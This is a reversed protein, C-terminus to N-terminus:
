NGHVKLGKGYELRRDYTVVADPAAAAAAVGKRDKRNRNQCLHEDFEARDIIEYTTPRPQYRGGPEPHTRKFHAYAKLTKNKVVIVYELLHWRLEDENSNVLIARTDVPDDDKRDPILGETIRFCEQPNRLGGEMTKIAEEFEPKRDAFQDEWLLDKRILMDMALFMALQNEDLSIRCRFDPQDYQGQKVKPFKWPNEVIYSNTRTEIQFWVKNPGAFKFVGKYEAGLLFAKQCMDLESFDGRSREFRYGAPGKSSTDKGVFFQRGLNYGFEAGGTCATSPSLEHAHWWLHSNVEKWAAQFQRFDLEMLGTRFGTRDAQIDDFLQQSARENPRRDDDLKLMDGADETRRQAAPNVKFEYAPSAPGQPTDKKMAAVLSEHKVNREAQQRIAEADEGEEKPKPKGKRLFPM